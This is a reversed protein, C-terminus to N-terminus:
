KKDDKKFQNHLFDGLKTKLNEGATKGLLAMDVKVKPDDVTGEILLPLKMREVSKDTFIGSLGGLVDGKTMFSMVKKTYEPSLLVTGKYEIAGGFDYFGGLEIDGVVGLSTKLNDMGVKGDKVVIKTALSRVAQEQDFKLSLSSAIANVAQYSAGSTVMKGKNMQAIADMSLSNVFENRNWGSAGYTGNIDIKGFLFGGFKSFRKIFDDVEIESAKYEGSYIPSAFNNLDISTKGTVKGSYVSGTVDYCELKRDQVRYNGNIGSFEIKNYILTDISFTGTGNMDPVILSPETTVAAQETVAESGPVAEPFMKDVDFRRSDLKLEFLPKEPEGETVGLYTLFYPVPRVVRGKMSLDSSIFQVKMSDVRFTDAVITFKASLNQIPEPLLTDKLSANTISMAGHPKLESLNVPSGTLQLKFNVNGGMQGGRKQLIYTNLVALDANGDLNGTILPKKLKPRDASDALYYNLVQEFRGEFNVNASKSKASIKRVNAVENDFYLDIALSEIPEPLYAAKLKGGTMSFNGSYKLNKREKLQGSFRVDVKANGALELKGKKSLLPQLVALDTSGTFDGNIFPNDFNNIVVHGKFPQGNFTGGEINARVNDPKFDILAQKFKFDGNIAAYGLSVDTLNITGSYNFPNDSKKDYELDVDVDFKGKIDYESLMNRKSPPVMALVQEALIQEGKINVRGNLGKRFDLFEGEIQFSIDNIGISSQRVAFREKTFDLEVGYIMEVALTPWTESGKYIVTDVDLNGTSNYLNEGPNELASRFNIGALHLSMRSSDDRYNLVGNNIEFREFSVAAAAPATEPPIEEPIAKAVASDKLLFTYNHSGDARTHMSIKPNNLIFRDIRFEGSLLPWFQMKVDVNETELFYPEPFAEPNSVTVQVLQLGLGGWISIDINEITVKRGLYDEAKEIAYAKAKEVPFFLKFVIVLLIILGVFIGLAWLFFKVLKKM